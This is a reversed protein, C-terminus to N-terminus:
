LKAEGQCAHGQWFEKAESEKTLDFERGCEDCSGQTYTM